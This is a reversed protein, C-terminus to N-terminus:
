CCTQIRQSIAYLFDRTVKLEMTAPNVNQGDYSTRKTSMVIVLGCDFFVSFVHLLGTSLSFLTFVRKLFKRFISVGSSVDASSLLDPSLM